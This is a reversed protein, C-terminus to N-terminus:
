SANLISLIQNVVQEEHNVFLHNAGDFCKSAKPKVRKIFADYKDSSIVSDKGGYYVCTNNNIDEFSKIESLNVESVTPSIMFLYKVDIRRMMLNLGIMAGTSLGVISIDCLSDQCVRIQNKISEIVLSAQMSFRSLYDNDKQLDDITNLFNFRVLSCNSNYLKSFMYNFVSENKSGGYIPNPPLLIILNNSEFNELYDCEISLNHFKVFIKRTKRNVIM